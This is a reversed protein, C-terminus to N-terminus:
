LSPARLAGEQLFWHGLLAKGAVRAKPGTDEFSLSNHGKSYDRIGGGSEQSSGETLLMQPRQYGPM